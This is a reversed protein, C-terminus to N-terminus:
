ANALKRGLQLLAVVALGVAAVLVLAGLPWTSAGPDGWPARRYGGLPTEVEFSPRLLRVIWSTPGPEGAGDLDTAIDPLLTTRVRLTALAM